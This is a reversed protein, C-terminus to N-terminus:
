PSPKTLVEAGNTAQTLYVKPQLNTQSQYAEAVKHAFTTASVTEVLAVACGGFGGGTMRAGYCGPQQQALDVILNLENNTIEFDDRMSIHSANMLQGMREADGACLAKSAQLVRENETLVHQARQRPKPALNSAGAQFTEWTLDRLHSVGFYVAAAECEMRRQNYGSNTHRHRTATDMIVVTTHDPMPIHRYSLDRCDLLLAHGAKATASIMQDMIGTRAGVWQNEARQAARAMLVPEFHWDSVLSFAKATGMELAASSSLGAGVPIDGSLVGEFGKLTYGDQKLSWAMGHVYEVWGTGHEIKALSFDVPQQMQLSHLLVTHDHRPRLAIWIAHDIAMPLVFGDNYDTHEGILNVRGPARVVYHPEDKFLKNFESTVTESLNM